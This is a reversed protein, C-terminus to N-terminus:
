QTNKANRFKIPVIQATLHSPHMSCTSHSLPMSVSMRTKADGDCRMKTDHFSNQVKLELSPTAGNSRTFRRMTWDIVQLEFGKAASDAVRMVHRAWPLKTVLRVLKRRAVLKVQRVVISAWGMCITRPLEFYAKRGEQCPPLPPPFPPYIYSDDSAAGLEYSFREKRSKGWRGYGRNSKDVQPHKTRFSSV